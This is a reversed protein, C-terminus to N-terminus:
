IFSLKIRVATRDILRRLEREEFLYEPTGVMEGSAIKEAINKISLKDVKALKWLSIKLDLVRSEKLKEGALQEQIDKIQKWNAKIAKYIESRSTDLDLHLKITPKGRDAYIEIAPLSPAIGGKYRQAIRDTLLYGELITLFEVKFKSKYLRCRQALGSLDFHYEQPNPRQMITVGKKVGSRKIKPARFGYKERIREVEKQFNPNNSLYTIEELLANTQNTSNM